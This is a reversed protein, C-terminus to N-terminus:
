HHKGPHGKGKKTQGPPAGHPHPKKTKVTSKKQQEAPFHAPFSVFCSSVSMLIGTVLLLPLFRSINIRKM